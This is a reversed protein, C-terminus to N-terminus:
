RLVSKEDTPEKEYIIIKNSTDALLRQIYKAKQFLSLSEVENGVTLVGVVQGKTNFVPGGSNGPYVIITAIVLDTYKIKGDHITAIQPTSSAVVGTTMILFFANPNGITVIRDGAVLDDKTNLELFKFPPLAETNNKEARKTVKLLAVDHQLDVKKIEASYFIKRDLSINVAKSLGKDERYIVHAATIVQGDKSIFFGAGKDHTRSEKNEALVQVIGITKERYLNQLSYEKLQLYYFVGCLICFSVGIIVILKKNM